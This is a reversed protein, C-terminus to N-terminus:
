QALVAVLGLEEGTAVAQEGDHLEPEGGRRNEDVEPADAVQVVDAVLAVAEGDARHGAVAVRLAVRGQLLVAAEDGVRGREDPVRGDPVPASDPAGDAVAVGGGVQGGGQQGEVRGEDHPPRVALPGNRGPIEELVVKLRVQRGVLHQRLDPDGFEVAGAPRVLLEVAAGL